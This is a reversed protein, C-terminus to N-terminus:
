SFNNLLRILRSKTKLTFFINKCIFYVLISPLLVLQICNLLKSWGCDDLEYDVIPILIRLAVIIPSKFVMLVKIFNNSNIWDSEDIPNLSYFFQQFMDVEKSIIEPESFM